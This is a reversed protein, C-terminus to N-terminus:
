EGEGRENLVTLIRAIRRRIMRVRAPKDVAGGSRIKTRLDRLETRLEALEEKLEESSKARIERMERVM